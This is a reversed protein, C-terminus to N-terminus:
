PAFTRIITEATLLGDVASSVIGGAYGAGEGIPYLGAFRTSARTDPDRLIRVPSSARAEPGLLVASGDRFISLREGLVPISRAISLGVTPPVIERLDVPRVGLAYSTQLPGVSPRGALFDAVRQAPATYDGGALEFARAEWHRQFAVGDLPGTGFDAPEVTVVLASTAFPGDRALHSMGNTSLHGPESVAPVVVGGPCMCFTAVARPVHPGKAVLRYEAHPLAPHGAHRGYRARDLDAQRHEIRLGMQFPKGALPVGAEALMRYTDRASHGVALCVMGAPIREAGVRLAAVRDGEFELQDMRTGFRVTGGAAEIRGRLRPVVERLRDTGVHPHSDILIDEPAGCAVLTELVTRVRPDGIRTTLKGDSFTGAGGEGFLWNSEPDLVRTQHFRELDQVRREVPQGREILLPAYGHEALCWAAFLGAPGAGVVVVPGPLSFPTLCGPPLTERRSQRPRLDTRRRPAEGCLHRVGNQQPEPAPEPLREAGRLHLRGAGTESLDLDVTYVLRIDNQHRADVARRVILGQRLAAPDAGIRACARAPVDDEPTGLPVSVQSVRIRM